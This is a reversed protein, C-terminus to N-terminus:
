WQEGSKGVFSALKNQSLTKLNILHHFAPKCFSLQNPGDKKRAGERCFLFVGPNHIRPIAKQHM